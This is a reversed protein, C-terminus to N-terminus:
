QNDLNQHGIKRYVDDCDYVNCEFHPWPSHVNSDDFSHLISAEFEKYCEM